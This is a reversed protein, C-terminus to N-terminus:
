STKGGLVAQVNGGRVRISKRLEEVIFDAYAGGGSYFELQVVMPGQQQRMGNMNAAPVVSSGAAMDVLDGGPTRIGEMQGRENVLVPGTRAGGEAAHAVPGGAYNGHASSGSLVVGNPLGYFGAFQGTLKVVATYNRNAISTIVSSARDDANVVITKGNPLKIIEQGLNNIKSSAGQAGLETDSMKSLMLGLSRPAVGGATEAIKLVEQNYAFTADQAKGVESTAVSNALALDYAAQAQKAQSEEVSDAAQKYEASKIGHAKLADTADKQAKTTAEVSQRYAFDKDVMAMIEDHLEQIAKAQAKTAAAAQGSAAAMDKARQASTGYETNLDGLANKLDETHFALDSMPGAENSNAVGYAQIADNVQKQADANGLYADTLTSLNIGMGRAVELVSQGTTAVEKDALAKAAMGRINEDIAGGNALLAQTLTQIRQQHEQAAQADKAQQDGLGNLILAVGGAVVGLPGLGSSTLASLGAKAKGAIGEADGISTKFDGWSKGVQGFSVTDVVKLATAFTGIAPVLPGLVTLLTNALNMLLTIGSFAMGAGSALSPLAVHALNEVATATADVANAFQPFASTSNNALEAVIRGAFSGLREVIQGFDQFDRGAAAAGQSSETFFNSVARGSSELLDAMGKTADGSAKAATVLGPMVARVGRDIGDFLDNVAPKAATFAQVMEPQLANFTRGLKEAGQIFDGSLTASADKAGAKVQQWLGAYANAVDANSSQAAAAIGIFLGAAGITSVGSAFGGAFLAGAEVGYTKMESLATGKLDFDVKTKQTTTTSSKSAAEAAKVREAALHQEAAAVNETAQQANNLAVKVALETAQRRSAAVDGKERLEKLRQEAISVREAAIQQAQQAKVVRQSAQEVGSAIGDTLNKGAKDGVTKMDNALDQSFRDYKRKISTLDVDDKSEVSVDVRNM